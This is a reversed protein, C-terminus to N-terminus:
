LDGKIFLELVKYSTTFNRKEFLEKKFRVPGKSESYHAGLNKLYFAFDIPRDFNLPYYKITKSLVRDKLFDFELLEPLPFLQSDQGLLDQWQEFSGKIPITLGIIKGNKIFHNIYTQYPRMWQLSFHSCILDAKAELKLSDSLVLTAEKLELKTTDLMNQSIDCGLLQAKPFKEKLSKLLLGTGCGMEIISAPNLGIKQISEIFSFASLAHIHCAKHYSRAGQNFCDSINM